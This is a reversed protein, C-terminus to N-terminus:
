ISLVINADDVTVLRKVKGEEGELYTVTGEIEMLSIDPLNMKPIKFYLDFDPAATYHYINDSLMRSENIVAMMKVESGEESKAVDEYTSYSKDVLFEDVKFIHGIEKWLVSRKEMSGKIRVVSGAKPWADEDGGYAQVSPLCGYDYVQDSESISTIIMSDFGFCYNWVYVPDLYKAKEGLIEGLLNSMIWVGESADHTSVYVFGETAVTEDVISEPDTMMIGALEGITLPEADEAWRDDVGSTDESGTAGSPAASTDDEVEPAANPAVTTKAAKPLIAGSAPAVKILWLDCGGADHSDTYGTLIYGGDSTEKVDYAQNTDSGGFTKNWEENGASDTKILWADNNGAGFSGTYGAVIYGGDSTQQVSQGFDSNSGGFFQGWEETGNPSTKILLVDSNDKTRETGGAIVYGGDSTQQVSFGRDDKSGGFTKEWEESPQAVIAGLTCLTLSLAL